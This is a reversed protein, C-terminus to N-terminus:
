ASEGETSDGDTSTILTVRLRSPVHHEIADVVIHLSRTVADGSILDSPLIPLEVTVVDAVAPLEGREAIVLGALTEVDSEPLPYGIVRHVEDIHVDGDMTWSNEGLRQTQESRRDDHEDAMVGVIEEAIDEVSLIGVFGGYEDVVCAMRRQSSELRTLADPLSMLTPVIMPERMLQSATAAPDTSALVAPLEVVGVPMGREDVVPYRSHGSAMLVRLEAVPLDAAVVDVRSRPIMAHETDQNPFDIVRDILLSLEVPLDGSARSDSVARRLEEPSAHSEIDHVPQVGILKLLGAAAQDFIWILWGFVSLYALTPRALRRALPGPSAIALNKPYLEGFIMQVITALALALITGVSISVAPPVGVGGLITGLSEGILPEAVYGVMLGTVTIGLQAGSLMFSTRKTVKLANRAATDGAEALARLRSRDVSMYAFEQAVFFGGVAIIALTLLVGLLLVLIASIM